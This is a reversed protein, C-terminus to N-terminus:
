PGTPAQQLMWVRWRERLLSNPVSVKSSSGFLEEFPTKKGIETVVPEGYVKGLKASLKVADDMTGIEDVLKLKQAQAGTFVRGEALSAVTAVDMNRGKAVAELFQHYTDDVLSQLLARQEPTLKRYESGMGKFRGTAITVDSVGYKEMLGSFDLYSLIVGISGTETAANPLM